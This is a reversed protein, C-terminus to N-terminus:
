KKSPRTAKLDQRLRQMLAADLGGAGLGSRSRYAAIAKDTAPGKMGDAEGKLAKIRQLAVQVFLVSPHDSFAEATATTPKFAAAAAKAQQRQRADLRKDLAALAKKADAHGTKAALALWHYSNVLDVPAGLGTGFAVGLVFQADKHGQRAAKGAWRMAWEPERDVGRGNAYADSLQYQARAHGQAAAKEFFTVGEKYNWPVGRGSYFGIGVMYQSPAHGQAAAKKFWNMGAAYNQAVGQGTTFKMGVRYQDESAGQQARDWDAQFAPDGSTVCGALSLALCGALTAKFLPSYWRTTKNQM